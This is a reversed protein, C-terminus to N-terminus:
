PKCKKYFSVLNKTKNDKTQNTAKTTTINM